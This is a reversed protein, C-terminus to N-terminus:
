GELKGIAILYDRFGDSIGLQDAIERESQDLFYSNM